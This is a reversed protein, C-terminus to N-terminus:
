AALAVSIQDLLSLEIIDVETMGYCGFCAGYTMLGAVSVDATPAVALLIRRLLALRLVQATNATTNCLYCKGEDFLTQANTAAM